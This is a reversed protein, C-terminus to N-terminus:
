GARFALTFGGPEVLARNGVLGSAVTRGNRDYATAQVRGSGALSVRRLERRESKSTLLVVAGTSGSAQLQAIEPMVLLADLTASGGSVTAMVSSGAPATRNLAVPTLRVPSAADGQAGVAGVRVRGLGRDGATFRVSADSGHQLALVPQVLLAEAGAPLTWTLTSGAGAVVQQGSWLSEGTWAPDSAQAHADGALTGAEAEIVTLGDRVGITASARALRALEPEADLVQMTLLGHITSEAGSNRNLRGDAEVGDFTVGTAPNYTPVGARNAGFFWGAAVGALREIGRRGAVRGTDYCARVRADAGYAIQM